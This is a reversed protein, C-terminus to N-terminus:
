AIAQRDEQKACIRLFELAQMEHGPAYDFLEVNKGRFSIIAQAHMSDDPTLTYVAFRNGNTDILSMDPRPATSEIQAAEVFMRALALCQDSTLNM